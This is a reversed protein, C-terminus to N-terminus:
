RKNGHESHLLGCGPQSCMWDQTADAGQIAALVTARAEDRTSGDRKMVRTVWDKLAKGVVNEWRDSKREEPTRPPCVPMLSEFGHV